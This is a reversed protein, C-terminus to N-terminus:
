KAKIIKVTKPFADDSVKCDKPIVVSTLGTCDWFACEGIETVGAPIVVSM